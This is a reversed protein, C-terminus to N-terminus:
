GCTICIHRCCCSFVCLSSSSPMFHLLDMGRPSVSLETFRADCLGALKEMYKEAVLQLRVFLEGDNERWAQARSVYQLFYRFRLGQTEKHGSKLDGRKSRVRNMKRVDADNLDPTILSEGIELLWQRLAKYRPSDDPSLKKTTSTWNITQSSGVDQRVILWFLDFHGVHYEQRLALRGAAEMAELPLTRMRSARLYLPPREAGVLFRNRARIGLRRRLVDIARRLARHEEPEVKQCRVAAICLVNGILLVTFISGISVSILVTSSVCEGFM